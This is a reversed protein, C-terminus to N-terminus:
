KDPCGESNCIKLDRVFVECNKVPKTGEPVSLRMSAPKETGIEVECAWLYSKDGFEIPVINSVLFTETKKGAAPTIPIDIFIARVTVSDTMSSQLPKLGGLLTDTLKRREHYFGSSLIPPLNTTIWNRAVDKAGKYDTLGKQYAAKFEPVTEIEDAEVSRCYPSECNEQKLWCIFQPSAKAESYYCNRSRIEAARLRDILAKNEDLGGKLLYFRKRTLKEQKSGIKVRGSLELSGLDQAHVSAAGACVIVMALLKLLINAM